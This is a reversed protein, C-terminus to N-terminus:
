DEGKLKKYNIEKIFKLVKDVDKETANIISKRLISKLIETGKYTIKAM